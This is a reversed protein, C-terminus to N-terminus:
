SGMMMRATRRPDRLDAKVVDWGIDALHQILVLFLIATAISLSSNFHVFRPLLNPVGMGFAAALNRGGRKDPLLLVMLLHRAVNMKFALFMAFPVLGWGVRDELDFDGRAEVYALLLAFPCGFLFANMTEHANGKFSGHFRYIYLYNDWIFYPVVLGVVLIAVFLIATVRKMRHLNKVYYLPSLKLAIAVALLLEGATRHRAAAFLAVLLVLLLVLYTGDQVYVFRYGFYLGNLYLLVFLYWRTKLFYFASLAVFLGAVGLIVGYFGIGTWEGLRYLGAEVLLAAPPYPGSEERSWTAAEEATQDTHTKTYMDLIDHLVVRSEYMDSLTDPGYTGYQRIRDFGSVHSYDLYQRPVYQTWLLAIAVMSLGIVLRRTTTSVDMLRRDLDALRSRVANIHTVLPVSPM